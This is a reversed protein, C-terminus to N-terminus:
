ILAGENSQEHGREGLERLSELCVYLMGGQDETFHLLGNEVLRYIERASLRAMMAAENASIMRTSKDCKDCHAIPVKHPRIAIAEEIEFSFETKRRKRM